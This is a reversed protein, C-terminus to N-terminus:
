QTRTYGGEKGPLDKLNRMGIEDGYYIFPVGPMTLLFAFVTKLEKESRYDSVRPLDHNGSPISIFGKNRTRKWHDLYIKFFMEASGKGSADFYSNRNPTRYDNGDPEFFRERTFKNFIDRKRENRFLTTYAPTGCHIMFDCHFGAKLAQPAYTWESILVAQPYERDFMERVERWLKITEKKGPDKKVLSCAMDVRFGDAGKALFYRFLDKLENRVKQVDPHDVPLQWPQKPDPKAFGYNLAPQVSFYNILFCGNRDGIGAEMQFGDTQRMWDDSWIFYNSYQNAEARASARFWPHDISTHGAVIDLCVKINRKHAEAILQDLDSDKGFRPDVHRFDTIDYGGDRFTSCFCPNLWIANVGLSVLYDLKGTIGPLDGMGDGNSDAFSSPYIQYFVAKELWKPGLKSM